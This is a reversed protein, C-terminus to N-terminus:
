HSRDSWDLPFRQGPTQDGTNRHCWAPQESALRLVCRLRARTRLTVNISRVPLEPGESGYRNAAGLTLNLWPRPQDNRQKPTARVVSNWKREISSESGAEFKSANKFESTTESECLCQLKASKIM